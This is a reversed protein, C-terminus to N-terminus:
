ELKVVGADDCHTTIMRARSIRRTEKDLTVELLAGHSWQADPGPGDFVTNGLSYALCSSPDHDLRQVVHPGSGVILDAGSDLMESALRVQRENPELSHETGWHPMVIVWDARKRAQQIRSMLEAPEPLLSDDWGILALRCDTISLFETDARLVRLGSKQLISITNMLGDKVLDLAHNNALSLTTIGASHLCHSAEIPAVLQLRKGQFSESKESIVCELNGLVVDAKAFIPKLHILPNQGQQIKEGVKRGLMLDGTFVLKLPKKPRKVQMLQAKPRGKQLAAYTLLEPRKELHHVCIDEANLKGLPPRDEWIAALHTDLHLLTAGDAQIDSTPQLYPLVDKPSGWPMYFGEARLGQSIFNACDAGWGTEPGTRWSRRLIRSDFLYPLGFQESWAARAGQTGKAKVCVTVSPTRWTQGDRTIEALVEVTGCKLVPDLFPVLATQPLTKMAPGDTLPKLIHRLWRPTKSAFGFDAHSLRYTDTEACKTLWRVHAGVPDPKIQLIANGDLELGYSGDPRQPIDILQLHPLFPDGAWSELLDRAKQPDHTVNDADWHQLLLSRLFPGAQDLELAPLTEGKRVLLQAMLSRDPGTKAFPEFSVRAQPVRWVTDLFLGTLMEAQAASKLYPSSIAATVDVLGRLRLLTGMVRDVAPALEADAMAAFFDLDVSAVIRREQPWTTAEKELSEMDLVRYRQALSGAERPLAEQHGDLYQRAEQELEHAEGAQLKLKPVWIVESVPASMLPELWNYCQIVGKARWRALMESRIKLTPGKRVATRIEDSNAISSADNHADLLILTHAEKLPLTEILHYFAGAHSEELHVPLQAPSDSCLLLAAIIVAPRM